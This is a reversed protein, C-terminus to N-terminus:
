LLSLLGNGPTSDHEKGPLNSLQIGAIGGWTTMAGCRWPAGVVSSGDASM